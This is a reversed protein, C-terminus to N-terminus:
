MIERKLRNIVDLFAENESQWTKKDTVPKGGKPFPQFKGLWVKMSKNLTPHVEMDADSVPLLEWDCFDCVVPFIKAAGEKYKQYATKLEKSNIYGSNLFGPTILLLFINAQHMAREIQDDWTGAVIARDTWAEIFGQEELASLHEGLKDKFPEGDSHAYSIFLKPQALVDPYKIPRSFFGPDYELPTWKEKYQDHGWDELELKNMYRAEKLAAADQELLSKLHRYLPKPDDGFLDVYVCKHEWQERVHAYNNTGPMHVIVNNKWMLNNYVTVPLHTEMGSEIDKSRGTEGSQGSHLRVILKNVTGAPIFPDFVLKLRFAPKTFFGDLKPQEDPLLAPIVLETDGFSDKRQYCLKYALMLSIFIRHEDTNNDPWIVEFLDTTLVGKKIFKSDLAKVIGDKIWNPNLIVWRSLEENHELYIVSGIRDLIVLWQRAENSSLGFRDSMCVAEYDPYPMYNQPQGTANDSTGSVSKLTDLWNKVEMWHGPYGQQSFIDKSIEPLRERIGARLGALNIREECSIKIFQQINPFQSRMSKEGIDAADRSINGKGVLDIKNMVYIVPCHSQSDKDYGFGNVMSLWYDFNIYDEKDPKDDTATVFLYLSKRSCFFQQIERYRGQGGFDWINLTFNVPDTLGTLHPPLNELTLKAIELAPTRDKGDPLPATEDLLRIRISSKGVEGNGVLVMKAELLPILSGKSKHRGELFAIVTDRSNDREGGAIVEKEFRSLPNGHLYLTKLTKIQELGSPLDELQNGRLHLIELAPPLDKFRIERLRNGNLYLYKLDQFLGNLDFRELQNDSADFMVLKLCAGHDILLEKLGNRSIDFYELRLLSPLSFSEIACEHLDLSKLRLTHDPPLEVKKLSKCESIDLYQLASMERPFVARTLANESLNLAQLDTLQFVLDLVDDKLENSCLNLGLVTDGTADLAYQNRCAYTMLESLDDGRFRTLALGFTKELSQLLAPKPMTNETSKEDFISMLRNTCVPISEKM